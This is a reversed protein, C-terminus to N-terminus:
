KAERDVDRHECHGMTARERALELWQQALELYATKLEADSACRAARQLELAKQRYVETWSKM